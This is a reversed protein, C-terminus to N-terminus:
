RDLSGPGTLNVLGKAEFDGRLFLGAGITIADMDLAPDGQGNFKGGDCAM